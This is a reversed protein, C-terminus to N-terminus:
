DYRRDDGTLPQPKTTITLDRAVVVHGRFLDSVAPALCCMGTRLSKLVLVM